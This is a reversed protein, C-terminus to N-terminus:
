NTELVQARQQRPRFYECSLYLILGFLMGPLAAILLLLPFNRFSLTGYLNDYWPFSRNAWWSAAAVISSFTVGWSITVGCVRCVQFWDKPLPWGLFLACLLKRRPLLRRYFTISLFQWIDSPPQEFHPRRGRWFCLLPVFLMISMTLINALLMGRVGAGFNRVLPNGDTALTPDFHLTIAFDAARAAVVGLFTIATLVNRDM